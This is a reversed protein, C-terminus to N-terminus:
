FGYDERQQAQRLIDYSQELEWGEEFADSLELRLFPNYDVSRGEIYARRGIEIARVIEDETPILFDDKKNDNLFKFPKM